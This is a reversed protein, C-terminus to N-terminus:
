SPIGSRSTDLNKIIIIEEFNSRTTTITGTIIIVLIIRGRYIVQESFIEIIVNNKIITGFVCYKLVGEILKKPLGRSDYVATVYDPHLQILQLSFGSEVSKWSILGTGPDTFKTTEAISYSQWLLLGVFSLASTILKQNALISM